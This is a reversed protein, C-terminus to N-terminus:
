GTVPVPVSVTKIAVLEPRDPNTSCVMLRAPRLSERTATISLTGERDRGNDRSMRSTKEHELVTKTVETLGESVNQLKSGMLIVRKISSLIRDM